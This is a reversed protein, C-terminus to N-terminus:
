AQDRKKKTVHGIKINNGPASNKSLLEILLAIKNNTEDHKQSTSSHALMNENHMAEVKKDLGEVDIKLKDVSEQIKMDAAKLNVLEEKILGTETEQKTLRSEIKMITENKNFLDFFIETIDEKSATNGNFNENIPNKLIKGIHSIIGEGLLISIAYDNSQYTKKKILECEESDCRHSRKCNVCRLINKSNCKDTTHDTNSCKFCIQEDACKYHTLSGCSNCNKAFNIQPKAIRTASSIPIGIVLAEIFCKITLVKAKIMRSPMSQNNRIYIREFNVVGFEQELKKATNSSIKIKINKDMDLYILGLNEIPEIFPTIGKNFADFPWPKMLEMLDRYSSVEIRIERKENKDNKIKEFLECESLKEEEPKTERILEAKLIQKIIPKCRKLEKLRAEYTNTYGNIGKGKITVAFKNRPYKEEFILNNELLKQTNMYYSNDEESLKSKEIWHQIKSTMEKGVDIGKNLDSLTRDLENKNNLSLSQITLAEQIISKQYGLLTTQVQKDLLQELVKESPKELNKEVSNKLENLIEKAKERDENRMMENNIIELLAANKLKYVRISNAQKNANELKIMDEKLMRGQVRYYDLITLAMDRNTEFTDEQLNEEAEIAIIYQDKMVMNLKNEITIMTDLQIQTLKESAKISSLISEIMKKDPEPSIFESQLINELNTVTGHQNYEINFMNKHLQKIDGIVNDHSDIQTLKATYPIQKKILENVQASTRKCILKPRNESDIEMLNETSLEEEEYEESEDLDSTDESDSSNSESEESEPIPQKRSVVVKLEKPTVINEIPTQSDIKSSDIGQNPMTPYIKPQFQNENTMGLHESINKFSDIQDKQTTINTKEQSTNILEITSKKERKKRPGEKRKTYARKKYTESNKIISTETKETNDLHEPQNKSNDVTSM